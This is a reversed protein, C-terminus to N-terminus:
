DLMRCSGLVDDNAAFTFVKVCFARLFYSPTAFGTLKKSKATTPSGRTIQVHDAELGFTVNERLFFALLVQQAGCVKATTWKEDGTM